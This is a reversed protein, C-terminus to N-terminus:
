CQELIRELCDRESPNLWMLGDGNKRWWTLQKKAYVRTNKKIREIAEKRGLAGDFYAFMEKLGVTNLSNLARREYVGRAESELGSEVMLDVRRNIREFLVERPMDLMVKVISFDRNVSRKSLFSSYPVGATLSVEVAHRLRKINMLDARGYYEPDLGLLRIRLWEEGYKALDAGVQERVAVPITPMEDLGNCFADIYLMSGGCVVVYDRDDFIHRAIQLSDEEFKAASYPADLPLFDLLHHRAAAREEATPMATVIPIGRYVQRSDASIIETNLRRALSIALSTKGSATPGTIIIATKM